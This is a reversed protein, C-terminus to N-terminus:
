RMATIRCPLSAPTTSPGVAESSDIMRTAAPTPSSAAHAFRRVGVAGIATVDVGCPLQPQGRQFAEAHDDGEDGQEGVVRDRLRLGKEFRLVEAVQQILVGVDAHDGDAHGQHDDGPPDIERDTRHHREGGRHAHDGHVGEELPGHVFGERHDDAQRGADAEAGRASQEVSQQDRDTSNGCEDHRKHRM